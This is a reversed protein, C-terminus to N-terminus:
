SDKSNNTKNKSELFGGGFYFGIITIMIQGLWMENAFNMAAKVNDMAIVGYLSGLVGNMMIFLFVFTFGFALVRQALKFPQYAKLLELKQNAKFKSMEKSDDAKEQDTYFAKDIMDGAKDIVKDTGFIKGLIGWM